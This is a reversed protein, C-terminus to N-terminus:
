CPRVCPRVTMWIILLRRQSLLRIKDNQDKPLSPSRDILTYYTDGNALTAYNAGYSVQTVAICVENSTTLYQLTSGIVYPCFSLCCRAIMAPSRAGSCSQLFHFSGGGDKGGGQKGLRQAWELSRVPWSLSRGSRSGRPPGRQSYHIRGWCRRQRAGPSGFTGVARRHWGPEPHVGRAWTVAVHDKRSPRGLRPGACGHVPTRAHRVAAPWRIAGRGSCSGGARQPVSARRGDTWGAGDPRMNKRILHTSKSGVTSTSGM